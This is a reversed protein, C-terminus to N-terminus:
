KIDRVLYDKFYFNRTDMFKQDLKRFFFSSSFFHKGYSHMKFDLKDLFFIVHFLVASLHYSINSKGTTSHGCDGSSPVDKHDAVSPQQNQPLGDDKYLSTWNLFNSLRTTSQCICNHFRCVM